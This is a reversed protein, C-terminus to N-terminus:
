HGSLGIQVRFPAQQLFNVGKSAKLPLVPASSIGGPADVALVEDCQCMNAYIGHMYRVHDRSRAEHAGTRKEKSVSGRVPAQWWEFTGIVVGRALACRM